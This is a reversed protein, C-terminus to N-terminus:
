RQSKRTSDTSREGPCAAKRRDAAEPRLLHTHPLRYVESLRQMEEDLVQLLERGTLEDLPDASTTSNIPPGRRERQQRRVAARRSKLALQRATVHLWAALRDPHRLAAAKRALVLFTAQFADEADEADPLVRRCVGLVMAGHRAILAAFAGKERRRIFRELLAADSDPAADPGSALRRIYQLLPEIRTAMVAIRM